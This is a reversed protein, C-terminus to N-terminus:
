WGGDYDADSVRQEFERVLKRSCKIALILMAVCGVLFFAGANFDRLWFISMLAAVMCTGGSWSTVIVDFM